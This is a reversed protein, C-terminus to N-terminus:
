ASGKPYQSIHKLTVPHDAGVLKCFLSLAVGWANKGAYLRIGREGTHDMLKSM